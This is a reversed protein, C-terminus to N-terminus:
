VFLFEEALSIEKIRMKKGGEIMQWTLNFPIFASGSNVCTPM